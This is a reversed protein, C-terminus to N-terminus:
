SSAELALWADILRQDRLWGILPFRFDAPRAIAIRSDPEVRYTLCYGRAPARDFYPEAHDVGQGFFAALRKAVETKTAYEFRDVDVVSSKWVLQQGLSEYWYLSDGPNLEVYPWYRKTWMHFFPTGRMAEADSPLDYGRSTVYRM